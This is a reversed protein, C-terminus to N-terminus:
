KGNKKRTLKAIFFGDAGADGPLLQKMSVLEFEPHEQLFWRVNEENEAEHITCTSYILSGGQKVYTHVTELITRQLAALSQEKEPTMKYRIDKKRGMVGLGSCPLDCILIDAKEVSEPDFVTADARRADMNSLGHRDINEQILGVKYDTLDRAEVHGTGHLMEALHTSKGGPAACVDIIFDGEKPQATEAVMMSSLDQVYFKGDLFAPLRQISDFRDITLAYPLVLSPTASVGQETLEALLAEPTTKDLNVRITVPAKEEFHKLIEETKDTGFQKEWQLIIWEPVSYRRSLDPYTLPKRNRVITRLVGNVFGSLSSFGRKKAIKVAENCVASDPVSDMYYIQYVSMRLLNRILPKMKKIKVKSCSDIIDDMQIMREITGEVLRTLFARDKKEMWAYKDLVERLVLHSYKEQEMIEM